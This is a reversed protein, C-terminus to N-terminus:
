VVQRRRSREETRSVEGRKMIGSQWLLNFELREEIYVGLKMSYSKKQTQNNQYKRM